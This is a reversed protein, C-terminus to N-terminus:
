KLNYSYSKLNYSYTHKKPKATIPIAPNSKGAVFGQWLFTYTVGGWGGGGGGGRAYIKLQTDKM